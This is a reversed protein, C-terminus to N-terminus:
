GVRCGLPAGVVWGLRCGLLWGDPWGLPTGVELGERGVKDGDQLGVITGDLARHGPPM